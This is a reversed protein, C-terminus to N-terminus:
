VQNTGEVGRDMRSQTRYGLWLLSEQLKTVAMSNEKCSFKGRNLLELRHLVIEILAENSVGNVGNEKVPGLQFNIKGVKGDKTLDGAKFIKYQHHAGFQEEDTIEISLNTDLTHLKSMLEKILNISLM